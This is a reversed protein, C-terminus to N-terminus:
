NSMSRFLVNASKTLTQLLDTKTLWDLLIFIECKEYILKNFKITSPLNRCLYNNSVKINFRCSWLSDIKLRYFNEIHLLLNYIHFYVHFYLYLWLGLSSSSSFSQSSNSACAETNQLLTSSEFSQSLHFM